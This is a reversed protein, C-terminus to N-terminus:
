AGSPPSLLAPQRASRRAEKAMEFALEDEVRAIEGIIADIEVEPAQELGTLNGLM